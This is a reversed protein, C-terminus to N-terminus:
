VVFIIGSIIIMTILSKRAQVSSEEKMKAQYADINDLYVGTGIWM